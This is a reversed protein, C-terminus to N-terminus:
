YRVARTHRDVAGALEFRLEAPTFATLDIEDHIVERLALIFKMSLEGLVRDVETHPISREQGRKEVREAISTVRDILTIFVSLDPLQKPKAEFHEPIPPAPPDMEPENHGAQVAELYLALQERWLKVAEEYGTTHSAHWAILAQNTASHRNIGEQLISRALILDQTLDLPNPDAQHHEVAERLSGTANALQYRATHKQGVGGHLKCRGEGPHDTGWGAPRQCTDTGAKKRLKAGCCPLKERGARTSAQQGPTRQPADTMLPVRLHM